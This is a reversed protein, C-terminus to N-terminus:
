RSMAMAANNTFASAPARRAMPEVGWADRYSILFFALVTTYNLLFPISFLVFRSGKTSGIGLALYVGILLGPLTLDRHIADYFFFPVSLLLALTFVALGNKFTTGMSYAVILGFLTYFPTCELAQVEWTIFGERLFTLPGLPRVMHESLILVVAVAVKPFLWKNTWLWRRLTYPPESLPQSSISGGHLLKDVERELEDEQLGDIDIGVQELQIRITKTFELFGKWQRIAPGRNNLELTRHTKLWLIMLSLSWVEM